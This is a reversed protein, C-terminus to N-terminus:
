DLAQLAAFLRARSGHNAELTSLIQERPHKVLAGVLLSLLEANEKAPSARGRVWANFTTFSVGLLRAIAEQSPGGGEPDQLARRLRAATTDSKM